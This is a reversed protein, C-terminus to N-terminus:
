EEPKKKPEKTSKSSPANINGLRAMKPPTSGEEFGPFPRAAPAHVPASSPAPTADPIPDFAHSPISITFPNPGSVSTSLRPTSSAGFRPLFPAATSSASPQARVDMLPPPPSILVPDRDNPGIIQARLLATRIIELATRPAPASAGSPAHGLASPASTTPQGLAQFNMGLNMRKSEQMHEPEAVARKLITKPAIDAKPALSPVPALADPPAPARTTNQKLLSAKIIEVATRRVRPSAPPEAPTQAPTLVSAIAPMPSQVPAQDPALALPPAPAFARPRPPRALASALASAMDSTSPRPGRIATLSRFRTRSSTSSTAPVIKFKPLRMSECPAPPSEPDPMKMPVAKKPTKPQSALSALASAMDSTSPAPMRSQVPAQDPALAPPPGPAPARPRSPRALASALASAMDSTSPRPGRIATLSRFRTRSSTSSTAPVIKFKPLHM